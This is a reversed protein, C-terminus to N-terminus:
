MGLRLKRLKDNTKTSMFGYSAGYSNGRTWFVCNNALFYDGVAKQLAGASVITTRQNVGIASELLKVMLRSDDAGFIAFVAQGMSVTAIASTGALSLVSSGQYVPDSTPTDQRWLEAGVFISSSHYVPRVATFYDLIGTSWLVAAGSKPNITTTQGSWVAPNIGLRQYHNLTVAGVVTSYQIKVFGPALTNIPM